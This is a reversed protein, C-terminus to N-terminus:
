RDTDTHAEGNLLAVIRKALDDLRCPNYRLGRKDICGDLNFQDGTVTDTIHRGAELTFRPAAHNIPCWPACHHVSM